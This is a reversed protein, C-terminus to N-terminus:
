LVDVSLSCIQNQVNENVLYVSIQLVNVYTQCFAIKYFCVVNQRSM